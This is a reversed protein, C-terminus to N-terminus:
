PIEGHNRQGFNELGRGSHCPFPDPQGPLRYWGVAAGIGQCVSHLREIQQVHHIRVVLAATEVLRITEASEDSGRHSISERRANNELTRHPVSQALQCGSTSVDRGFVIETQPYRGNHLAHYTKSELGFCLRSHAIRHGKQGQRLQGVARGNGYVRPQDIPRIRGRFIGPQHHRDREFPWQLRTQGDYLVLLQIQM